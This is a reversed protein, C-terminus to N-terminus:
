EGIRYLRAANGAAMKKAVEAPVRALSDQIALHSDPFTSDAHPYDSAWMYNDEGFLQYLLPGVPDDQFTAYVQPAYSSPRRALPEPLLRGFKEFAHDLRFFFHPLWGIDNEGSVVRLAPFRELVGGCILDALSQQIEHIVNFYQLLPSQDSGSARRGVGTLIHLSVPMDLESACRWFPDYERNSFSQGAPPSAWILAGKLGARRCRELEKVGEGVDELSILALGHFRCPASTVFESIWDNYVRFCARQLGGDPLQFLPMGHTPYLIEADVGDRDQDKIREGPDWGGPRAAEYGRSMHDKLDAGRKGAGFGAAVPFPIMGPAVFLLMDRRHDRVVRPARDRYARDLREFWLDAPETMHSDASIVRLRTESGVHGVM